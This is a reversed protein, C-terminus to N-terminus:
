QIDIKICTHMVRTTYYPIYKPNKKEESRNRVSISQLTSSPFTLRQNASVKNGECFINNTIICYGFQAGKYNSISINHLYASFFCCICDLGRFAYNVHIDITNDQSTSFHSYAFIQICILWSFLRYRCVVVYFSIVPLFM